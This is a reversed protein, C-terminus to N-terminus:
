PVNVVRKMAGFCKFCPDSKPTEMRKFANSITEDYLSEFRNLLEENQNYNVLVYSNNLDSYRAEAMLLAGVKYLMPLALVSSNRCIFSHMSCNLSYELSVGYISGTGTFASKTFPASVTGSTIRMYSNTYTHGQCSNCRGYFDNYVSGDISTHVLDWGFFLQVKQKNSQYTLDLDVAVPENAVSDVSVTKIVKGTMLDIVKLDVTDDVALNLFLRNIYLEKYSYNDLELLIGGHKGAIPAVTKLDQSYFGATDSEILSTSVVKDAFHNQVDNKILEEALDKKRNLLEVSNKAEDNISDTFNLTVGELDNIFFKAENSECVNRIGIKDSLCM